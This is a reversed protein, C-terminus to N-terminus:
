RRATKKKTTKEKSWYKEKLAKGGKWLAYVIGVSGVGSGYGIAFSKGDIGGSQEKM